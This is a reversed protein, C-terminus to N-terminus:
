VKGGHAGPLNKSAEVMAREAAWANACHTKLRPWIPGLVGQIFGCVVRCFLCVRTPTLVVQSGCHASITEHADGDMLVANGAEDLAVADGILWRTFKSM